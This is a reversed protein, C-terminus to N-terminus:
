AARTKRAPVVLTDLTAHGGGGEVNLDSRNTEPGEGHVASVNVGGKEIVEGEELVRSRGGGGGEREWLDERFQSGDIAEVEQCIEDQLDHVYDTFTQKINM